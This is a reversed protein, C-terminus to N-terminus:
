KTEGTKNKNFAAMIDEMAQETPSPTKVIDTTIKLSMAIYLLAQKLYEKNDLDGGFIDLLIKRDKENISNSLIDNTAVLDKLAISM